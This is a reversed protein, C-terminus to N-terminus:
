KSSNPLVITLNRLRYKLQATIKRNSDNRLFEFTNPTVVIYQNPFLSLFRRVEETVNQIYTQVNTVFDTTQQKVTKVLTDQDPLNLKEQIQKAMDNINTQAQTILQNLQVATSGQSDTAAPTGNDAAPAVRADTLVVVAVALAIALITKM